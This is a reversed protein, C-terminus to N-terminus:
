TTTSGTSNTRCKFHFSRCFSSIVSSPSLSTMLSQFFYFGGSSVEPPSTCSLIGARTGAIYALTAICAIILMLAILSAVVATLGARKKSIEVSPDGFSM